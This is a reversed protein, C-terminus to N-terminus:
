FDKKFEKVDKAILGPVNKLHVLNSSFNKIAKAKPMFDLAEFEPTANNYVDEARGPLGEIEKVIDELKTPVDKIAEIYETIDKLEEFM